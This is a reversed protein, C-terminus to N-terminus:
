HVKNEMVLNALIFYSRRLKKDENGCKLNERRHMTGLSMGKLISKLRALSKLDGHYSRKTWTAVEGTSVFRM